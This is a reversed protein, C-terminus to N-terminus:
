DGDDDGGEPDPKCVTRLRPEPGSTDGLLVVPLDLEDMARGVFSFLGIADDCEDMQLLALLVPVGVPIRGLYGDPRALLAIAHDWNWPEDPALELHDHALRGIRHLVRGPQAGICSLGVVPIALSTRAPFRPEDDRHLKVPLGSSGDAEVLVVHDPLLNSLEDVDSPELGAWKEPTNGDGPLIGGHVFVTSSGTECAGLRLKAYEVVRLDPWDLPETRTTTTICVRVGDVDLAAAMAQLLSTKGGGGFLAVVHGGERPLIDHWHDLFLFVASDGTLQLWNM